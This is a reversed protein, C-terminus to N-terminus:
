CKKCYDCDALCIDMIIFIIYKWIPLVIQFKRVPLHYKLCQWRGMYHVCALINHRIVLKGNFWIAFKCHLEQSTVVALEEWWFLCVHHHDWCGRFMCYQMLSESVYNVNVPSLYLIHALCLNVDLRCMHVYFFYICGVRGRCGRGWVCFICHCLFFGRFSAVM